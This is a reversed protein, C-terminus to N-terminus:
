LVEPDLAQRAVLQALGARNWNFQRLLNKKEPPSAM